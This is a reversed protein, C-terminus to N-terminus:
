NLSLTANLGNFNTQYPIIHNFLTNKRIILIFVCEHVLNKLMFQKYKVFQTRNHLEKVHRSVSYFHRLM